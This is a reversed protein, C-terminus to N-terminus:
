VTRACSTLPHRRSLSGTMPGALTCACTHTHALTHTCTHTHTRARTHTHTHIQIHIHADVVSGPAAFALSSGLLYLVRHARNSDSLVSERATSHSNCCLVCWRKDFARQFVYFTFVKATYSSDEHRNLKSAVNLPADQCPHPDRCQVLSLELGRGACLCPLVFVCACVCM